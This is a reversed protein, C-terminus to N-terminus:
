HISQSLRDRAQEIVTDHDYEGSTVTVLALKEAEEPLWVQVFGQAGDLYSVKSVPKQWLEGDTGSREQPPSQQHTM